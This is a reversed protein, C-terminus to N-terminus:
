AAAFMGSPTSRITIPLFAFSTGSVLGSTAAAIALPAAIRDNGSTSASREHSLSVITTAPAYPLDVVADSSTCQRSHAAACAPSSSSGEKKMPAIGNVGDVLARNPRPLRNTSSPSSYGDDLVSGREFNM